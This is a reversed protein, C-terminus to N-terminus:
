EQQLNIIRYNLVGTTGIKDFLKKFLADFAKVSEGVFDKSKTTGTLQCADTDKDENGAHMRVGTFIAKGHKISLDAENYILPLLRNFRQSHTIRVFYDDAPIATIHAIKVGTARAVDELMFCEAKQAAIVQDFLFLEGISSRDTFWKRILLIDIRDHKIM